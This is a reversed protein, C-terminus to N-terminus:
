HGHRELMSAIHARLAKTSPHQPGLVRESGTLTEEFLPIARSLEGAQEYATALTERSTLTSPHDSGLMQEFAALNEEALSIAGLPDQASLYASVLNHKSTLTDPHDPGSVSERNAIVAELIPIARSPTGDSVYASALNNKATATNPHDPGFVREHDAVSQELLPIAKSIREAAFYAYALNGRTIVADPDDAGRVRRSHAVVKRLLRITRSPEGAMSYAAALGSQSALTNPHHRGLVRRRDAVTREFLPIARSLDGADLYATALSNRMTLTDRHRPGIVREQDTIADQLISIAKPYDGAMTHAHGMSHRLALADPDDPGQLRQRDSLARQFFTIARSHTGQDLLYQATANWLAIPPDEETQGAFHGALADIHPLLRRWTPWDAPDEWGPIIAYLLRAAADLTENPPFVPEPQEDTETSRAVAQILPHINVADADRAVLAYAELRALVADLVDEDDVLGNLMGIPIDDPAYWALIRLAAEPLIGDEARIRDLSVQCTSTIVQQPDDSGPDRLQQLYAAASVQNQKMYAAAQGVAPALYGLVRCLEEAGDLLGPGAVRRITEVAHRSPLVTPSSAPDTIDTYFRSAISEIQEPKDDKVTADPPWYQTILKDDPSVIAMSEGPRGNIWRIANLAPGSMSALLTGVAQMLLAKRRLETPEVLSEYVLQVESPVATARTKGWPHTAMPFMVDILGPVQNYERLGTGEAPDYGFEILYNARDLFSLLSVAFQIGMLRLDQAVSAGIDAASMMAFLDAELELSHAPWYDRLYTEFVDAGNASERVRDFAEAAFWPSEGAPQGAAHLHGRHVHSLEHGVLFDMAGSAIEFMVPILDVNEHAQNAIAIATRYREGEVAACMGYAIQHHFFPNERATDLLAQPFDPHTWPKEMDPFARGALVILQALILSLAWTDMVVYRGMLVLYRNEAWQQVSAHPRYRYDTAFLFEHEKCLGMLESVRTFSRSLHVACSPPEVPTFRIPSRALDRRLQEMEAATTGGVSGASASEGLSALEAATVEDAHLARHFAERNTFGQEVEDHDRLFAGLRESHKQHETIAAIFPAWGGPAPDTDTM